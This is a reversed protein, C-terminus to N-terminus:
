TLAGPLPEGPRGARQAHSPKPWFWGILCATVPLSAWVVFWEDFISGIFLVTVALATLFPWITPEPSSARMDPKAESTTTLLIERLDTRLGTMVGLGDPSTWLPHRSEVVPTMAFNYAPPPSATAWELGSAGWPNPGAIPGVRASRILNVLYTAVGLALAAAGVSSLLNLAGWGMEAPYTYVRRPMGMLGLIHMPFFAVNFGVFILWFSLKGLGEGPMRGTVKPFWYHIGGLLPFVAGGILVYHFHAVVFYTDHIQLDLPVAALMVGTLGGLVFVIVFGVVFLMPTAFRPRGDWLTAIWCFIQVGAPLAITMSAATYFSDGLHPLGTAFMHHVWLGFALFGTAVLALVMVPYGFVSRRCFTATIESVM